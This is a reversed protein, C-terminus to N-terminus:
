LKQISNMFFASLNVNFIKMSFYRFFFKYKIQNCRILIVEKPLESVELQCSNDEAMTVSTIKENNEETNSENEDLPDDIYNIYYKNLEVQADNRHTHIPDFSNSITELDSVVTSDCVTNDKTDM